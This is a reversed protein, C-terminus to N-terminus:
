KSLLFKPCVEKHAHFYFFIISLHNRPTFPQTLLTNQYFPALIDWPTMKWMYAVYLQLYHSNLKKNKESKKMM